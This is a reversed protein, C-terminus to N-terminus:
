VARLVEAIPDHIEWGLAGLGVLSAVFRLAGNSDSARDLVASVDQGAALQRWYREEIPTLKLESQAFHGERMRAATPPVSAVLTMAAELPLRERFLEVVLPGLAKRVVIRVPTKPGVTVTGEMQVARDFRAMAQRELIQALDTQSVLGEAVLQDGFFVGSRQSAEVLPEVLAPDLMGRAVLLTGLRETLLTSDAGILDGRAVHLFRRVRGNDVTVCADRRERWLQALVKLLEAHAVSM